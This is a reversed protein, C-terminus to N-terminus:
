SIWNEVSITFSFMGPNVANVTAREALERSWTRTMGELAAKSAGYLTHGALGLSSAVSSINVIRGSRDNPLYPKAAQVLLLPGRVNIHYLWNFKEAEINGMLTRDGVGANNIIIDLQFTGSGPRNFRQKAAAVISAPGDESGMDAQVTIAKVGHKLEIASALKEARQASSRSVYDM